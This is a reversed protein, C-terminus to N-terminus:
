RRQCELSPKIKKKKLERICIYGLYVVLQRELERKHCKEYTILCYKIKTAKRVKKVNKM